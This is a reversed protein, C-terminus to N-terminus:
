QGEQSTYSKTTTGCLTTGVSRHVLQVILVMDLEIMVVVVTDEAFSLLVFQLFGHVNSSTNVLGSSFELSM